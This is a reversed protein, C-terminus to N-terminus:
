HLLMAKHLSKQLQRRIEVGPKSGVHVRAALAARLSRALDRAEESNMKVAEQAVGVAQSLKIWVQPGTSKVWLKGLMRQLMLVSFSRSAEPLKSLQLLACAVPYCINFQDAQLMRGLAEVTSTILSTPVAQGNTEMVTAVALFQPALEGVLHRREGLRHADVLELLMRLSDALDQCSQHMAAPGPLVMQLDANCKGPTLYEWASYFICNFAVADGCRRQFEIALASDQKYISAKFSCSLDQVYAEAKISFKEFNVSQVVAVIKEELFDLIQNAASGATMDVLVITTSELQFFPDM